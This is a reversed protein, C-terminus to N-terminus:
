RHETVVEYVVVRSRDTAGRFVEQFRGPNRAVFQALPTAPAQSYRGEDVVVYAAQSEQIMRAIAREDALADQPQEAGSIELGQRGTRWFVEGPHRSIVPGPRKGHTIMWQCAADFDSHSAELARSRESALAYCSYPLALALVVCASMFHMRRQHVRNKFPRLAGRSLGQIGEVMGILLFPVLPILFRGAETFPWLGFIGLSCLPVLAALRRRPDKLLRLWGALVVATVFLAWVNAAVVVGLNRGPATGVEVFPGFLQDPIRQGYFIVPRFIREALSWDTNVLLGAQTKAIPGVSAMWCLWPAVITSALAAVALAKAWRGHLVLDLLIALALGIAAHRTLLSAGLLMGVLSTRGIRFSSVNSGRLATVITLQSMLLFLPESLIASSTRAWTWNVALALGSALAARGPLLLRFWLWAALAAAITCLASAVHAAVLSRGSFWWIAALFLPYGPPFHAHPPRGPQDIARYGQGSLLAQALVSYGAGDFRPPASWVANGLVFAASVLVVV